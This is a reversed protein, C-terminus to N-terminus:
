GIDIGDDTRDPKSKPPARFAAADRNPLIATSDTVKRRRGIAGSAAGGVILAALGLYCIPGLVLLLGVIFFVLGIGYVLYSMWTVGPELVANEPKDPDYHVKVTDGVPYRNVVEYAGSSSSSRYDGGFYVNDSQYERGDVTYKYLVEAAYMTDGDDGRSTVVESQEIVGDVAPWKESAKANDLISKGFHFAVFYGIVAFLGGFILAGITKGM